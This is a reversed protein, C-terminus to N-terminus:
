KPIPASLGPESVYWHAKPDSYQFRAMKIAQTPCRVVCLGCRICENEDLLLTQAEAMAPDTQYQDAGAVGGLEKLPVLRIIKEPCVDVCAACLICLDSDILINYACQLCRTAEKMAMERTFGIEAERSLATSIDDPFRKDLELFRMEQREIKEYDLSRRWVEMIEHSSRRRPPKQGTLFEHVGNAVKHGDAIAAILNRSGETYDGGAFLGKVNTMWTDPDRKVNGNRQLEVKLDPDIWSTDNWQGTAPIVVDCPIIFESGEIPVPSRRGSKDPAGLKNRIFKIGSVKGEDDGIVELPAALYIFRIGELECEEIEYEEVPAELQTRRYVVTVEEAGMRRASRCCDMATFGMGLVVVRNGFAADEPHRFNLKELWPLGYEYGQFNEGPIGIEAPIASGPAMIVADYRRLLESVSIDDKYGIKTNLRIEVGLAGFYQDVENQVVDRPLRWIPIGGVMMGGPEPFMEYVVVKYGMIALDRAASLGASGAGIIAVKQKRTVPAKKPLFKDSRYDSASRKLWCIRITKDILGRRCTSECPRACVRGLVGPFVNDRRNLIYAEDFRGQAVLGIYNSVDTHAPCTYQCPVNTRFWETDPLETPYTQDESEAYRIDANKQLKDNIM